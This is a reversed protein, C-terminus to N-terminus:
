NVRIAKYTYFGGNDLDDVYVYEGWTYIHGTSGYGLVEYGTGDVKIKYLGSWASKNFYIWGNRVDLNFSWVGEAVVPTAVGGDKPLRYIARGNIAPGEFYFNDKYLSLYSIFAGELATRRIKEGTNVNVGQIIGRDVNYFTYYVMPSAVVFSSVCEWELLTNATGDLKMRYLQGNCNGTMYYIWEGVIQAGYVNSGLRKIDSGDKNMSVYYTVGGIVKNCYIRSGVININAGEAVAACVLQANNFALDSRYLNQDDAMYYLWNDDGGIMALGQMANGSLNGDGLATTSEQEGSKKLEISITSSSKDYNVKAGLSESVFRLPVMTKGEVIKPPVLLSKETGNAWVQQSGISCVVTNNGMTITVTPSKWTVM